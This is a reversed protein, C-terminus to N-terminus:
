IFQSLYYEHNYYQHYIDFGDENKDIPIKKLKTHRSEEKSSTKRKPITKRSDTINETDEKRFLIGKYTFQFKELEKLDFDTWSKSESASALKIRDIIFQFFQRGARLQTLYGTPNTSKLEILFIYINNGKQHVLIFDNKVRLGAKTEFFPYIESDDKDFEFFCTESIQQPFLQFTAREKIENKSEEFYVTSKDDSKKFYHFKKSVVSNLLSPFSRM